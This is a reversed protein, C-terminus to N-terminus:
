VGRQTCEELFADVSGGVGFYVKKAAVITKGKTVRTMLATITETFASLSALSYITESGLIFTNMEASSPILQLLTSVPSWSGSILSIRLGVASLTATFASLLTHTLYVDGHQLEQNLLPNGGEPFLQRSEEEDLTSIWTLLLNPLTVLRLVDLNYDTLTFDIKVKKELAHQFLLLSPLASGCGMEIVHNVEGLDDLKKSLGHDLLYKVLDISCEWTKYGGEYVNTQM